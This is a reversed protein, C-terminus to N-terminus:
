RPLQFKLTIRTQMEVPRGNVLRPKFRWQKVAGTAAQALLLPGSLVTVEQVSGDPAIRVELVVAGQIQQQRAEEPYQPEVRNLLSGEAAETSLEVIEEPAVSARHVEKPGASAGPTLRFVEKGNEYVLLSGEPPLSPISRAAAKGPAPVEGKNESVPGEGVRKEKVVERSNETEPSAAASLASTELKRKGAVSTAGTERVTTKKGRSLRLGVLTALLLACVVIAAVLNATVANVGTRPTQGTSPPVTEEEKLVTTDERNLITGDGQNSSTEDVNTPLAARSIERDNAVLVPGALPPQNEAASPASDSHGGTSGVVRNTQRSAQELNKLIRGALAQL